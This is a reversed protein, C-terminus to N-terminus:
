RAEPYFPSSGKMLPNGPVAPASPAIEVRAFEATEQAGAKKTTEDAVRASSWPGAEHRTPSGGAATASASVGVLAAALAFAMLRARTTHRHKRM